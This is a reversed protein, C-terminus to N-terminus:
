KPQKVYGSFVGSLVNEIAGYEMETAQKCNEEVLWVTNRSSLRRFKMPQDCTEFTARIDNTCSAAFDIGLGCNWFRVATLSHRNCWAGPYETTDLLMGTDCQFVTVSDFRCFGSGKRKGDILIGTGGLRANKQPKILVNRVSMESCEVARIGGSGKSALEITLNEVGGGTQPTISQFNLAFFGTDGHFRLISVRGSGRVIKGAPVDIPERVDTVGDPLTSDWLALLLLLCALKM